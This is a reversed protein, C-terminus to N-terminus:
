NQNHRLWKLDSQISCLLALGGCLLVGSLISFILSGIATLIFAEDSKEIGIFLMVSAVLAGILLIAVFLIANLVGMAESLWANIRESFNLESYSGRKKIASQVVANDSSNLRNNVHSEENGKNKSTEKEKFLAEERERIKEAEEKERIKRAEEKERFYKLEEIGPVVFTFMCDPCSDEKGAEKIPNRLLVSCKPCRYEVLIKKTEKNGNLIKYKM